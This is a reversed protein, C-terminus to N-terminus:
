EYAEFLLYSINDEAVYFIFIYHRDDESVFLTEDDAPNGLHYRNKFPAASIAAGM